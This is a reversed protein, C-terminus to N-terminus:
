NVPWTELLAQDTVKRIAKAVFDKATSVAAELKMGKGLGAAIASSLMCGTGRVQPGDIWEGGFVAVHGHDDLVDVARGSSASQKARVGPQRLHGGKILVAHAGMETLKLAAARMGKEDEIRLGTLSEAEPINPTIVRAQPVLESLMPGIADENMLQYGSSSRLVPDIVPAPLNRERLLRAVELVVERTPLMGIKVAAIQFEEIVPVLQARVSEATEHVAGFVRESNQFTLSTIAAIALCDFSHFTKIDVIVGAGGSPDFGAITLLVPQEDYSDLTM